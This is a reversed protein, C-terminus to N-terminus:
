DEQIYTIDSRVMQDEQQQSIIDHVNVPVTYRYLKLEMQILKMSNGVFKAVRPVGYPYMSDFM